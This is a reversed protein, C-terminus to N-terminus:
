YPEVPSLPYCERVKTKKIQCTLCAAIIQTRKPKRSLPPQIAQSLARKPAIVPPGNVQSGLSLKRFGADGTTSM